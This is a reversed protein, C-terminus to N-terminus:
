RISLILILFYFLQIKKLFKLSYKDRNWTVFCVEYCTVFQLGHVSSFLGIIVVIRMLYLIKQKRWMVLVLDALIKRAYMFIDIGLLHKSLVKMEGGGEKYPCCSLRLSALCGPSHSPLQHFHYCSLWALGRPFSFCANELVLSLGGEAWFVWVAWSSLYLYLISQRKTKLLRRLLYFCLICVIQFPLSDTTKRKQGSTYYVFM